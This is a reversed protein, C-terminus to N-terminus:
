LGKLPSSHFLFLSVAIYAFARLAITAIYLCNTIFDLINWMDRAYEHLGTGWLQKVEVWILGFM